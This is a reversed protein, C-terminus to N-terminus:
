NTKLSMEGEWIQTEEVTNPFETPFIVVQSDLCYSHLFVQSSFRPFNVDCLLVCVFRISTWWDCIM